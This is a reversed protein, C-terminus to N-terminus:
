FINILLSYLQFKLNCLRLTLTNAAIYIAWENMMGNMLLYQIDVLYWARPRLDQSVAIFFVSKTGAKQSNEIQKLSLFFVIEICHSLYVHM